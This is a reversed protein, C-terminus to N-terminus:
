LGYVPALQEVTPLNNYLEGRPGQWQNGVRRLVVPTISGNKNTVNVVTTNAQQGIADIQSQQAKIKDSQHGIAGGILGGALGGAVAGGTRSVGPINHGAIGGLLAGGAAGIGAGKVTDSMDACGAGVVFALVVVLVAACAKKM